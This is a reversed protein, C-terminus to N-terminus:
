AGISLLEKVTNSVLKGDAKGKVQPTLEKMVKGLDKLDKAGIQRIVTLAINKIEEPSLQQPLFEMLVAIEQQLKAVEELNHGKEFIPIADKRQKVERSLIELYDQETLERKADIKRNKLASIAMRITSLRLKDGSKMALKMEDQLKKLM